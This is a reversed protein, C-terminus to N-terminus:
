VTHELATKAEKATMKCFKGKAASFIFVLISTAFIKASGIEMHCHAAIWAALQAIAQTTTAAKTATLWESKEEKSCILSRIKEFNARIFERIKKAAPSELSAIRRPPRGQAEASDLAVSRVLPELFQLLDGGMIEVRGAAGVFELIPMQRYVLYRGEVHQVSKRLNTEAERVEQLLESPLAYPHDDSVNEHNAM